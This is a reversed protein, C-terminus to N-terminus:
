YIKLMQKRKSSVMNTKPLQACDFRLFYRLNKKKVDVIVPAASYVEQISMEINKLARSRVVTYHLIRTQNIKFPLKEKIMDKAKAKM